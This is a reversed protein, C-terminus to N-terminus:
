SKSSQTKEDKRFQVMHANETFSFAELFLKKDFNPLYASIDKVIKNLDFFKKYKQGKTM